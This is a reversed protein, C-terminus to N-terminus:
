VSRRYLNLKRESTRKLAQTWGREFENFQESGKQYPNDYKGKNEHFSVMGEKKYKNM